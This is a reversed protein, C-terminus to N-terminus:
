VKLLKGCIRLKRITDSSYAVIKNITKLSNSVRNASRTIETGATLLGITEELTNGANAMVASSIGLNKAIDASSVAFSNSVNNVADIVHRTNELTKNTDESELNFAKIQAILFDASEGASVEEDAINTYM